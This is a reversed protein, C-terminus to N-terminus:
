IAGLNLTVDARATAGATLRIGDVFATRFGTLSAEVRYPGPPLNAASYAGSESSVLTTTANTATNVVKVSVGPIGAKSTDMVVGTIAGRESQALGRAPTGLAAAAVVIVVLRKMLM